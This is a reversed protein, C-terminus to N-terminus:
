SPLTRDLGRRSLLLLLTAAAFLGVGVVVQVVRGSGPGGGGGASGDVEGRSPAPTTRAPSRVSGPSPAVSAPGDGVTSKAEGVTFAIQGTVPHGDVSVARYAMTYTGTATSARLRQRVVNRQVVPDGSTLATGDPGRVMVYAPASMEQSFTFTVEDPLAVLSAGQQPSSGELAAHASAPSTAVALWAGLFVLLGAVLVAGASSLRGDALRRMFRGDGARSPHARSSRDPM